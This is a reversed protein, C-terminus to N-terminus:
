VSPKSAEVMLPVKQRVFDLLRAEDTVSLTSVNFEVRQSAGRLVLLRDTRSITNEREKLVASQVKAWPLCKRGFPGALSIAVEDVKVQVLHIMADLLLLVLSLTAMLAGAVLLGIGRKEWLLFTCLGATAAPTSSYAAASLFSVFTPRFRLTAM